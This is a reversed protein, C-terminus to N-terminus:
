SLKILIKNLCNELTVKPNETMLQSRWAVYGDPRVLVAGAKSIEYQDYWTNDADILDADLDGDAAAIKYVIFPLSYTQALEQAAKRWLEGESGILLVFDKEFLDLTSITENNKILKVYPARSGPLTTPIYESPSVSIVQDNESLIAKSHYIYGLDLGEYNLHDQQEHLKLKLKEKNGSQIAEVIDVFRKANVTSWQINRQAIPVREEFYTDLLATPTHHNLVFALKWALNHADQVGTNMGLGGTPPLRHAADGVLFIRRQRYQKAVQAAMTWFSKNIIKIALDPLDLVRRIESMCYDDTFDEQTDTATFRMGVTWRNKGYATFLSRGSRKPDTFFFGISPRDKTWKSIDFECFVNCFRGLNDPGEMEIGMQKRIRSHAGDAAILYQAHVLEERNTKKDVIRATIGNEDEVFSIMEKSFQIEAENHQQLTHYLYEEVCDQTVFSATLPGHTYLHAAKIEIRTLENGQLSETWIFRIAEKPFEYKLLEDINGWQRFLEMTRMSVGRARPHTTRGRHREILLCRVNQRALSLAMSLGVPGGGIILVPINKM